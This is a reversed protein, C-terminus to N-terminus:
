KGLVQGGGWRWETDALPNLPSKLCHQAWPTEGGMVARGWAGGMGLVGLM